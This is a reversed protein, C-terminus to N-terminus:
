YTPKSDQDYPRGFKNLHYAPMLPTESSDIVGLDGDEASIQVHRKLQDLAPPTLGEIWLHM